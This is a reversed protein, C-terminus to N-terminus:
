GDREVVPVIDFHELEDQTLERDTEIVGYRHRSRPLHIERWDDAPVEIYQWRVGPPLGGGGAPRLTTRYRRPM